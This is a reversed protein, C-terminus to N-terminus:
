QQRARLHCVVMQHLRAGGRGCLGQRSIVPSAWGVEIGPFGPPYFPGVRGVFKGSLKEEVVFMGFGRLVWHGAMIAANRWGNMPDTVPKCDATIFHESLPDGLKATNDAIDSARWPRLILRETEIGPWNPQALSVGPKLPPLITWDDSSDYRSVEARRVM